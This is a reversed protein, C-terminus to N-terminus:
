RVTVILQGYGTMPNEHENRAELILNFYDGSQADSPVTFTLTLSDDASLATDADAGGEYSSGEKYLWWKAEFPRVDAVSGRVTVTEGPVACLDYASLKVVPNHNAEAYDKVCWDARAAFDEHYAKLFPNKRPGRKRMEAMMAAMDGRQMTDVRLVGLMTGYRWDEMGRLGFNTFLPIYTGSDGEGLIDYKEFRLPEQGLFWDLVPLLGYQYRDCEGRFVTGDGYLAYKAMLPGHNVKFHPYMYGAQMMPLVDEQCTKATMFSAYGYDGRICRIGPFKGPIDADLFSNDQGQGGFVGLIAIKKVVKGCVAPWEPKDSYKEWISLLARVITNVGGWSQLYLTDERADMICREILRSGETEYRVDGEFWYNGYYVKSLLEEPAPFGEAHQSLKPYVAAYENKITDEIWGTEFPRFLMMDKASPDPERDPMPGDTEKRGLCCYHPTVENLTHIGDGNWHFQSSTYVIGELELENLYLFLHILSNMDDCEMDTTLITRPKKNM